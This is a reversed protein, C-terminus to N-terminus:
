IRTSQLVFEINQRPYSLGVINYSIAVTLENTDLPYIVSVKSGSIRPEFNELLLQIDDELVIATDPDQQEFLSDELESGLLPNFFREGIRTRVLNTVARKIASENTFVGIDDTVPHRTFSLSIDKFAQSVTLTKNVKQM